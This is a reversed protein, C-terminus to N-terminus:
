GSFNLKPTCLCIPLALQCSSNMPDKFLLKNRKLGQNQGTDTHMHKETICLIPHQMVNNLIYVTIFQHVLLSIQSCHKFSSVVSWILLPWFFWKIKPLLIQMGETLVFLANFKVYLDYRCKELENSQHEHAAHACTKYWSDQSENVMPSRSHSM